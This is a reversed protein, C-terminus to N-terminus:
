PRIGGQQQRQAPTGEQDGAEAAQVQLFAWLIEGPEVVGDANLDLQILIFPSQQMELRSLVGNRDTDLALFTVDMFVPRANLLAPNAQAVLPANANANVPQQGLFGVQFQLLEDAVLVGDNNADIAPFFPGLQGAAEARSIRRDGDRDFFQFIEATRQQLLAPFDQRQAPLGTVPGPQQAPLGTVPANTRQPEPSAPPTAAPTQPQVAQAVAPEVLHALMWGGMLGVAAILGFLMHKRM